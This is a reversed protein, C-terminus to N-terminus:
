LARGSFPPLGLDRRLHLSLDGLPIEQAAIDPPHKRRALAARLYALGVALAGHREVLAKLSPLPLTNTEDYTM